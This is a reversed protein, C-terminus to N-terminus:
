RKFFFNEATTVLIKQKDSKSLFDAHDEIFAVAAKFTNGKKTQLPADSEWMCRDPGFADVIRKLLPLMEFYPPEKKGLTYFAGIKLMVKKHRAMNLLQKIEEEVLVPESIFMMRRGILCFHDIIVPTEPYKTCMRDLEPLDVPTMLFSLALNHKAAAAFMKHYGPHDLWREGDNLKPRASKGRIRFAYVGGKSLAVMTADPRPLSIDTVAPVIGTGVFQRPNKAIVDLIYSHDLGYWTMQILNFRDVGATQGHAITEEASFSPFWLDKETFGAALPFKKTDATWIHVHADIIGSEPVPKADAQRAAPFTAAIGAGAVSALVERRTFTTM